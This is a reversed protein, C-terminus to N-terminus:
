TGSTSNAALRIISEFTNESNPGKESRTSNASLDRLSLGDQEKQMKSYSVKVGVEGITPEQNGELFQVKPKTLRLWLRSTEDGNKIEIEYQPIPDEIRKIKVNSGLIEKEIAKIENEFQLRSGNAKEEARLQANAMSATYNEKNTTNLQPTAM